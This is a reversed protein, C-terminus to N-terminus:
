QLPTAGAADFTAGAPIMTNSVTKADQSGTYAAIRSGDLGKEKVLYDKTHAAREAALNVGGKESASANGVIALRADSNRQLNLAIEDLCAKGENNVRSPRRKDSDFHVSCLESVTPKPPASPATITVTTPASATQGKEDAVSCTVTITGVAAGATSLAATPGSGSVSGASASYSYTLMGGQPSMGTATITSTDGALVTSPNASCSVTAPEIAKVTYPASCDASENPKPGETVHGKLTYSGPATKTTDIKAASSDGTVTGGDASWTYTATKSPNLNLATGSGALTDGPYATSPTVSCSYSLPPLKAERGGGFRFVIGSSLRMDNQTGNAATTENEFRTMLYEAQILRIAFHRHVRIDLGAGATLGFKDESPLPTCGIDTCGSSLTVKSAHIDGFLAQVFPTVRGHNRFSVRPGIMYTYAKGNSDVDVPTGTTGSIRLRSDDFGSFDGVLGLYRNLNFALSTSGGNLTMFRNGDIPPSPIARLYSYGLFLEFRPYHAKRGGERPMDVAMSAAGLPYAPSWTSPDTFLSVSAEGDDKTEGNSPQGAGVAFLNFTPMLFVAFAATFIMRVNLRM